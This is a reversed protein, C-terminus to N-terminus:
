GSSSASSRARGATADYHSRLLDLAADRDGTQVHPSEIIRELLSCADQDDDAVALLPRVAALAKGPDALNDLWCAAIRARSKDRSKKSESDLRSEWLAILDAWREHRELLRELSQQVQTDKPALPLLQQLYNIAQDPQNAVDKALQAAERLLRVRRRKDKTAELARDYLRLLDDWREGHTYLVSLRQLASESKPALELVRGLIGELVSPDDGFWEDCFSAAREGVMGAIDKAAEDDTLVERYLAVVDDPSDLDAALDEVEDWAATSHPAARVARAAEDLEARDAM